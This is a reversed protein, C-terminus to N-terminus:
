FHIIQVPRITAQQKQGNIHIILMEGHSKKKGKLVLRLSNQESKRTIANPIKTEYTGDLKKKLAVRGIKKWHGEAQQTMVLVPHRRLFFLAFVALVLVGGGTAVTATVIPTTFWNYTMREYTSTAQITYEVEGTEQQITVEYTSVLQKGTIDPLKVLYDNGGYTALYSSVTKTGTILIDRCIVGNENTYKEGAWASSLVQYYSDSLDLVALCDSSYTQCEQITSQNRLWKHFEANNKKNTVNFVFTVEQEFGDSRERDWWKQHDSERNIGDITILEGQYGISTIEVKM